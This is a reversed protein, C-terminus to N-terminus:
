EGMSLHALTRFERAAMAASIRPHRLLIVGTSLRVAPKCLM